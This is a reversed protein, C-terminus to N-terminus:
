LFKLLLFKTQTGDDRNGDDISQHDITVMSGHFRERIKRRQVDNGELQHEFHLNFPPTM